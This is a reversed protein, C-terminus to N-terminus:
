PRPLLMSAVRSAAKEKRAVKSESIEAIDEGVCRLRSHRARQAGICYFDLEFGEM